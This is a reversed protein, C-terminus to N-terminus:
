ALARAYYRALRWNFVRLKSSEMPEIVRYFKQIAHKSSMRSHRGIHKATKMFKQERAKFPTSISLFRKSMPSSTGRVLQM